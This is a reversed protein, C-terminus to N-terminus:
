ETTCFEHLVNVYFFSIYKYVNINMMEWLSWYMFLSDFQTKQIYYATYIRKNQSSYQYWEPRNQNYDLSDLLFFLDSPNDEQISIMLNEIIVTKNKWWGM